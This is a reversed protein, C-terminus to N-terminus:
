WKLRPQLARVPIVNSGAHSHSFLLPYSVSSLGAVGHVLSVDNDDDDGDDNMDNEDETAATTRPADGHNCVSVGLRLQTWLLSM